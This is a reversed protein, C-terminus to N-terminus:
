LTVSEALLPAQLRLLSDWSLKEMILYAILTNEPLLNNDSLFFNCNYEQCKTHSTLLLTHQAEWFVPTTPFLRTTVVCSHFEQEGTHLRSFSLHVMVM